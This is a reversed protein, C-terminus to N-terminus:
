GEQRGGPQQRWQRTAPASHGELDADSGGEPEHVTASTGCRPPQELNRSVTSGAVENALATLEETSSFIETGQGNELIEHLSGFVTVNNETDITFTPM